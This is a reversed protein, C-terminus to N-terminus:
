RVTPAPGPPPQNVQEELKRKLIEIEENNLEPGSAQSPALLNGNPLTEGKQLDDLSQSVKQFLDALNDEAQNLPLAGNTIDAPITFSYRLTWFWGFVIIVMSVAVGTWMLFKRREKDTNAASVASRM